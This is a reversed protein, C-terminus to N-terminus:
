TGTKGIEAKITDKKDREAMKRMVGTMTDGGIVERREIMMVIAAMDGGEVGTEEGERGDIVMVIVVSGSDVNSREVKGIAHTTAIGLITERDKEMVIMMMMMMIETEIATMGVEEEEEEEGEAVGVVVIRTIDKM